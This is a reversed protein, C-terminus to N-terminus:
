AAGGEIGTLSVFVNELDSEGTMARLEEPSGIAKVEGGSIVVIRDCLASGEQMIHSSFIV